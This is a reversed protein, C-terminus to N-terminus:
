GIQSYKLLRRLDKLMKSPDPERPFRMMLNGMPDVLYIHDAPSRAAPFAAAFRGDASRALHTGEIAEVLSARPTGGDTLVWLREVREMDRGLARRVQRMFYLKQECYTDCRSDDFQLLVWNGRLRALPFPRGDVAVLAGDPLAAPALLEGYNGASGTAWDFRYALWALVVPAAFFVAILLLKLRGRRVTADAQPRNNM